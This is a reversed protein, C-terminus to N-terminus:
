STGFAVPRMAPWGQRSVRIGHKFM